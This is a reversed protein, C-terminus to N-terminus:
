QLRRYDMTNYGATVWRLRSYDITVQQLGDYGATFLQLRRYNGWQLRSLRNYGM